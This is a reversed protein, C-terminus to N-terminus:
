KKNHFVVVVIGILQILVDFPLVLRVNYGYYNSAGYEATRQGYAHNAAQTSTDLIAQLHSLDPAAADGWGGVVARPREYVGLAFSPPAPPHIRNIENYVEPYAELEISMLIAVTGRETDGATVLSEGPSNPIQSPKPYSVEAVRSERHSQMEANESYPEKLLHDFADSDPLM